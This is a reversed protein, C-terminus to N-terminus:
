IFPTPGPVPSLFPLQAAPRPSSYVAAAETSAGQRQPLPEPRGGPELPSAAVLAAGHLCPNHDTREGMDGTGLVM